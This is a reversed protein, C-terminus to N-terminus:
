KDSKSTFLLIRLYSLFYEFTWANYLLFLFFSIRAINPQIQLVFPRSSFSNLSLYLSNYTRTLHMRSISTREREANVDQPIGRPKIARTRDRDERAPWGRIGRPRTIRYGSRAERV